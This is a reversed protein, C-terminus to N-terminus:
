SLQVVIAPVGGVRNGEVPLTLMRGVGGKGHSREPQEWALLLDWIQLFGPSSSCRGLHARACHGFQQILPVHM